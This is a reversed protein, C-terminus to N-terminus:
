KNLFTLIITINVITTTIGVIINVIILIRDLNTNQTKNRKKNAM